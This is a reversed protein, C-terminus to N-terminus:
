CIVDSVLFQLALNQAHFAPGLRQDSEVVSVPHIGAEGRVDGAVVGAGGLVEQALGNRGVFQVDPNFTLGSKRLAKEFTMKATQRFRCGHSM